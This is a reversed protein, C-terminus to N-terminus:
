PTLVVRLRFRVARALLLPLELAFGCLKASRLACRSLSVLVYPPDGVGNRGQEPCAIGSAGAREHVVLPVGERTLVALREDAVSPGPRNMRVIALVDHVREGGGGLMVFGEGNRISHP